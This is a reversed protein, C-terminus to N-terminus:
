AAISADSECIHRCAVFLIMPTYVSRHTQNIPERVTGYILSWAKRPTCKGLHFIHLLTLTADCVMVVMIRTILNGVIHPATSELNQETTRSGGHNQLRSGFVQLKLKFRSLGGGGGYEILEIGFANQKKIL